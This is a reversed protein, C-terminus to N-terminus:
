AAADLPDLRQIETVADFGRDPSVITDIGEEICTAVHVLDRASLMPYRGVLSPVRRILADTIPLVPQFQLLAERAIRIGDDPRKLAVYRHLIEQVVEASTTAQLTGDKARQLITQCPRRLPHEGGGAYMFIAADLLATM